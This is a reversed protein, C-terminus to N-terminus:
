LGAEEPTMIGLEIIDDMQSLVRDGIDARVWSKPIELRKPNAEHYQWYANRQASEITDGRGSVVALYGCGDAVEIGRKGKTVEQMHMNINKEDYGIVPYGASHKKVSDQHPFGPIMILFGIAWGPLTKFEPIEQRAGAAFLEVQSSSSLARRIFMDPFGFRPTFEIPWIGEENTMTGLDFEGHYDSKLLHDTFLGLTKKFFNNEQTVYRLCTGSEGCLPGLGRDSGPRGAAVEKFQWNLEIPGIWEKGNFYGACGVEIGTIRDEVEVLDYKKGSEAFRQMVAVADEASEMNSILIDESDAEGGVIKCVRLGKKKSVFKIAEEITKFSDSKLSKMGVKDMLSHAYDRDKEMKEGEASGGWCPRKKRAIEWESAMGNADFIVTDSWGLADKWDDVKKVMGEFIVHRRKTDQIWCVVEHGDRKADIALDLGDGFRSMLLFKM